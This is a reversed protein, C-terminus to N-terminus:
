TLKARVQSTTNRRIRSLSEPHIGLYKAISDINLREIIFPNNKILDLYREEASKTLFEKERRVKKRYLSQTEIRVLKNAIISHEYARNLEEACVAELKCDTTSVIQVDSPSKTLLSSYSCFFSEEFFFDVIRTDQKSNEINAQAIGSQLFYINGEIQHYDCIVEGKKVYRMQTNFPLESEKFTPDIHTLIYESINM